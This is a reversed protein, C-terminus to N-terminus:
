ELAKILRISREGFECEDVGAEVLARGLDSHASAAGGAVDIVLQDRGLRYTFELPEGGEEAGGRMAAAETVALKLDATQEQPLPTLRCVASLALRALLVYEAGAPITLAVNRIEATEAM